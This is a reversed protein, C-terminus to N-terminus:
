IKRHKDQEKTKIDIYISDRKISPIKRNLM